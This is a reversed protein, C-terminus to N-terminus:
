QIHRLNIYMLDKHKYNEKRKRQSTNSLFWFPSVSFICMDVATENNPGDFQKFDHLSTCFMLSKDHRLVITFVMSSRRPRV